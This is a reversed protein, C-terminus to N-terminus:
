EAGRHERDGPVVVDGVRHGRAERTRVRRPVLDEPRGLRHVGGIGNEDRAHCRDPGPALLAAGEGGISEVPRDRLQPCGRGVRKADDSEVVLERSWWPSRPTLARERAPVVDQLGERGRPGLEDEPAVDM